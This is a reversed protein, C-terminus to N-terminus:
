GSRISGYGWIATASPPESGFKGSCLDLRGVPMTVAGFRVNDEMYLYALHCRNLRVMNAAAVCQVFTSVTKEVRATFCLLRAGAGELKHGHGSDWHRGRGHRCGGLHAGGQDRFAGQHARQDTLAEGANEHVFALIRDAFITSASRVIAISGALRASVLGPRSDTRTAHAHPLNQSRGIPVV